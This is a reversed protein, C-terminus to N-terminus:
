PLSSATVANHRVTVLSGCPRACKSRLRRAEPDTAASHAYVNVSAGFPLATNM